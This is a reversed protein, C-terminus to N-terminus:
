KTWGYGLHASDSKSATFAVLCTNIRSALRTKKCGTSFSDYFVGFTLKISFMASVTRCRLVLQCLSLVSINWM